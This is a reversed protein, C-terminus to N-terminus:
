VVGLMSTHSGRSPALMNKLRNSQWSRALVEAPIKADGALISTLDSHQIAGHAEHSVKTVSGAVGCQEARGPININM